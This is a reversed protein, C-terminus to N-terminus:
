LVTKASTNIEFWADVREQLQCLVFSSKAYTIYSVKLKEIPPVINTRIADLQDATNTLDTQISHLKM